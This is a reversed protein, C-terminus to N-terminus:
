VNARRSWYWGPFWFSFALLGVLLPWGMLLGLVLAADLPLWREALVMAIAKGVNVAGWIATLIQWAARYAPARRLDEPVNDTAGTAEAAIQILPRPLLLSGFYVLGEIANNIAGSRLYLAPNRTIMTTVIQIAAFIVALVAFGEVRRNRWWTFLAM